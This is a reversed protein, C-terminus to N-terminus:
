RSNWRISELIEQIEKEHPANELLTERIALLLHSGDKQPLIYFGSKANRPRLYDYFIWFNGEWNQPAFSQKGINQLSEIEGRNLEFDLFSQYEDVLATGDVRVTVPLYFIKLYPYTNPDDASSSIVGLLKGAGTKIDMKLDKANHFFFGEPLKAEFQISSHSIKRKEEEWKWEELNPGETSYKGLQSWHFLLMEGM